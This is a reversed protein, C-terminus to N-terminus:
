LLGRSCLVLVFLAPVLTAAALVSAIESALDRRVDGAESVIPDSPLFHVVVQDGPRLREGSLGVSSARGRGTYSQEDLSFEYLFTAHNDCDLRSVRATAIQGHRALRNYRPV